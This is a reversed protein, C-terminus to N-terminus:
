WKRFAEADLALDGTAPYTIVEAHNIPYTNMNAHTGDPLIMPVKDLISQSPNPMFQGFPVFPAFALGTGAAAILRLFDRRSLENSNKVSESM